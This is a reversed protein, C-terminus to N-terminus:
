STPESERAHGQVQAYLDPLTTTYSSDCATLYSTIHRARISLILIIDKYM